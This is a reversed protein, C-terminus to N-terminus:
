CRLASPSAAASVAASSSLSSPSSTSSSASAVAVAGLFCRVSFSTSSEFASRSFVAKRASTTRRVVSECRPTSM